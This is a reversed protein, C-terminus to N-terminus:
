LGRLDSTINQLLGIKGPHCISSCAMAMDHPLLSCQTGRSVGPLQHKPLLSPRRIQHSVKLWRNEFSVITLIKLHPM